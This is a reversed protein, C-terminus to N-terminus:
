PALLTRFEKVTAYDVPQLGDGDRLRRDAGKALLLKAIQFREGEKRREGDAAVHLPTRGARDRANPDAGKAILLMATFLHAEAAAVHLATRGQRDRSDVPVGGEVARAIQGVRDRAALEHLTPGDGGMASGPAMLALVFTWIRARASHAAGAKGAAAPAGDRALVRESL